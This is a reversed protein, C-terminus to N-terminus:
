LENHLLEPERPIEYPPDPGQLAGPFAALQRAYCAAGVAHSYQPGLPPDRIRNALDSHDLRLLERISSFDVGPHDGSFLVGSISAPDVMQFAQALVAQMAGKSAPWPITEDFELEHMENDLWSIIIRIKTVSQEFLMVITSAPEAWPDLLTELCGNAPWTYLTAFYATKLRVVSGFEPELSHAADFLTTLPRDKHGRLWSPSTITGIRLDATGLRRAQERSSNLETMLISEARTETHYDEKKEAKWTAMLQQYAKSGPRRGLPVPGSGNFIAVTRLM